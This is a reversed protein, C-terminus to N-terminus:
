VQSEHPDLGVCLLSNVAAVRAELSEFFSIAPNQMVTGQIKYTNKTCQASIEYKRRLCVLPLDEWLM